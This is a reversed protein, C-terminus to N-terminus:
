TGYLWSLAQPQSWYPCSASGNRLVLGTRSVAGQRRQVRSGCGGPRQRGNSQHDPGRLGWRGLGVVGGVQLTLLSLSDLAGPGGWSGPLEGRLSCNHLRLQQLSPFASSLGWNDPLPGVLASNM